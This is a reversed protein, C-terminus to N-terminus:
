NRKVKQWLPPLMQTDSSISIEGQFRSELKHKIRGPMEYLTSQTSTLYATHCYSGQCVGKGTQVLGNNWTWNQSNSRSQCLNRLFCTLHGPIGIELFKGCNTTIWVTLPRLVALSASTPPDMYLIFSHFCNFVLNPCLLFYRSGYPFGSNSHVRHRSLLWQYTKFHCFWFQTQPSYAMLKVTWFSYLSPGPYWPLHPQAMHTGAISVSIHSASPINWSPTHTM